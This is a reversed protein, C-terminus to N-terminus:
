KSWRLAESALSVGNVHRRVGGVKGPGGDSGAAEAEPVPNGHPGSTGHAGDGRDGDGPDARGM